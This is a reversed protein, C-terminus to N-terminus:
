PIDDGQWTQHGYTNHYYLYLAKLKDGSRAFGCTILPDLSYILLLGDFYTLIRDIKTAISVRTTSIYHSENTVHGQLVAKCSRAM